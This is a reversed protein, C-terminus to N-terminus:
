TALSPRLAAAEHVGAYDRALAVGDPTLRYVHRPPRGPLESGQWDSEMLGQAALRMLLPYLTGSKLGTVRSLEYGHRWAGSSQVLADLVAITQRSPKRARPMQM